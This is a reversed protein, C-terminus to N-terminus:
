PEMLASPSLPTAIALISVFTMAGHFIWQVLGPTESFAKDSSFLATVFPLTAFIAVFVWGPTLHYLRLEDASRRLADSVDVGFFGLALPVAALAVVVFMFLPLYPKKDCRISTLVVLALYFPLFAVFIASDCFGLAVMAGLAPPFLWYLGKPGHLFPLALAFALLAWAFDFMKPELHTAASRVAPSMM